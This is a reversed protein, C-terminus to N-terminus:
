ISKSNIENHIGPPHDVKDAGGNKTHGALKEAHSSLELEDGDVHSGLRVQSSPSHHIPFM